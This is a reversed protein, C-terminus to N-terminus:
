VESIASAHLRLERPVHVLDQQFEKEGHSFRTELLLQSTATALSSTGYSCTADLVIKLLRKCTLSSGRSRLGGLGGFGFGM